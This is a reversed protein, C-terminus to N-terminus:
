SLFTYHNQLILDFSNSNIKTIDVINNVLKLLRYNNQKIIRTYKEVKEYIEPNANNNQYLNLMQLACFSLNLPTKLEHSLNAFFELKLKNYELEEKLMKRETVDVACTLTGEVNGEKDMLEEEIDNIAVSDEINDNDTGDPEDSNLSDLDEPNDNENLEEEEEIPADEETDEILIDEEKDEILNNEEKPISNDPM